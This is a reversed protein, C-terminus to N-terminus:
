LPRNVCVRMVVGFGEFLKDSRITHASPKEANTLCKNYTDFSHVIYDVKESIKRPM